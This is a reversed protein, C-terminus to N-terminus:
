YDKVKKRLNLKRIEESNIILNYRDIFNDYKSNSFYISALTVELDDDYCISNDYDIVDYLNSSGKINVINDIIEDILKKSKSFHGVFSVNELNSIGVNGLINELVGNYSYCKFIEESIDMLFIRFNEDVKGIFFSYGVGFCSYNTGIVIGNEGVLLDIKKVILVM